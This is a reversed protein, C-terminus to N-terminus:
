RPIARLSASARPRSRGAPYPPARRRRRVGADDAARPGARRGRVGAGGAPTAGGPGGPCAAGPRSLSANGRPLIIGPARSECSRAPDGASTRAARGRAPAAGRLPEASCHRGPRSRRGCSRRPASSCASSGSARCRRGGRPAGRVRVRAAVAGLPLAPRQADPLNIAGEWGAATVRAVAGGRRLVPLDLGLMQTKAPYDVLCSAPALGLERALADEVAVTLAHDEAIWDGFREDFEAAPCELARKYLRRGRLDDRVQAVEAPVGDARSPSCCGRTPTRPSGRPTSRAPRSRRASSGSTCRRRRACRTTGTCTATCRTSPSCCRSSRRSGRRACGSPWGGTAPDDVVVLANVCRDVDIEGYPVGCMLADRKLYEIKDLDLSGSILGRLPSDGAGCVLAHVREPADPAVHARLVEAV